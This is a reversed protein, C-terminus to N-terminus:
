GRVKLNVGKLRTYAAVDVAALGSNKRPDGKAHNMDPTFHCNINVEGCQLRDALGFAREIDRTFVSANLGYGTGNAIAVAEDDSGFPLTALVPGFVEEQEIESGRRVNALVTPAVFTAPGNAPPTGRGAVEADGAALARDVFGRVRAAHGESVLPGFFTGPDLADGIPLACSSRAIEGVVEDYVEEQVLLRSGAVCVQGSNVFAAMTAWRIAGDLDADAFIIVPAKGGLELHVPTLNAAALEMVRRGTAVSGTLSVLDVRGDGVLQEGVTEGRGLVVNMVGGPLGADRLLRALNVISVVAEEPPKVVLSCGAALAAAIRQSGTMLPANWPLLECVVGAPERLRLTMLDPGGDPYLGPPFSVRRVDGHLDRCAGAASAFAYAAEYLDYHMAGSVAKGTDLSELTALRRSDSRIAAAVADLVEARRAQPARSWVGGDFSRRAAAVAEDVEERSAEVWTAVTEATSPDIVPFAQGRRSERGEIIQPYPDTDVWSADYRGASSV